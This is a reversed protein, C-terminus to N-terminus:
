HDNEKGKKSTADYLANHIELYGCDMGVVYSSMDFNFVDYLVYRYSGREELDGKHIRKCVSHFCQLKQDHTLSNWFKEADEDYAKRSEEFAIRSQELVKKFDEDM